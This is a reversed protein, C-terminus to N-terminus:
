SQEDTPNGKKSQYTEKLESLTKSTEAIGTVATKKAERFLDLVGTGATKPSMINLYMKSYLFVAFLVLQFQLHLYVLFFMLGVSLFNYYSVVYIIDSESAKNLLGDYFFLPTKEKKFLNIVFHCAGVVIEFLVYGVMLIGIGWYGAPIMFFALGTLLLCFINRM